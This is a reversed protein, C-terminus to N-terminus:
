TVIDHPFMDYVVQNTGRCMAWDFQIYALECRRISTDQPLDHHNRKAIAKEMDQYSVWGSGGANSICLERDKRSSRIHVSLRETMCDGIEIGNARPRPASEIRDYEM